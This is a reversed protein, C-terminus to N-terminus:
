SLERALIFLTRDDRNQAEYAAVDHFVTACAEAASGGRWLEQIRAALRPLGFVEGSKNMAETLGDSYM